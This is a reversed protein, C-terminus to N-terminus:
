AAQLTLLEEHAVVYESSRLPVFGLPEPEPVLATNMMQNFLLAMRAMDAEAAQAHVGSQYALMADEAVGASGDTRTFRTDGMVTVDTSAGGSSSEGSHVQANSQLNITAIGLADLSQYEGDQTQGDANKDEWVGFKAWQADGTDLRGNGNSDFAKLGELDTQAGEVYQRFAFESANSIQHDGNLDLGLVGSGPAAWAIKDSVGDLDIDYSVKSYQTSIYSPDSGDLSLVVPGVYGSYEMYSTAGASMSYNFHWINVLGRDDTINWTSQFDTFGFGRKVDLYMGTNTYSFGNVGALSQWAYYPYYPGDADSESRSYDIRWVQLSQLSVSAFATDGDDQVGWSASAIDILRGSNGGTGYFSAGYLNVSAYLNPPPKVEVYATAWTQGGNGDDALYDFSATGTFGVTPVFQVQGNVVEAHGNARDRVASLGVADGDVDSDNGTLQSFGITMTSNKYTQFQDDVALPRDNVAAVPIIAQVTASELGAADRVKYSFSANGNFNANPTFVVNGNADLSVAGGNASGVWSLSLASNADDIDSDNGILLSKNINFVADESAGSLSEGQAVPADNVASLMVKATVPASEAGDADQVWYTFTAAQSADTNNYNAAPTFVVDGNANLSVTGHTGSEVRAIKLSSHASDIDTDNQLLSAATITLVADEQSQITEGLPVPADNVNAIELVATATATGGAGDSVTYNFSATGFFDADPVFAITGDSQISVTGQQANFVTSVSLVQPDTALDVDTDNQLLAAPAILLTQDELTDITEGTAVPVDNVGTIQFTAVAQSVAGAADRVQYVFSAPGHYNADPTFVVETSGDPMQVLAVTGHTPNGVANVSLVDNVGGWQVNNSDADTDNALLHATSIHLATDELTTGADDPRAVPTDNVAAIQLTATATRSLGYQDTVTYVFSATGFYNAEPAFFVEGNVLSVQGHVPASVATISLPNQSPNASANVTSDNALLISQPLRLVVDETGPLTEGQVEPYDLTVPATADSPSANASTSSEGSASVPLAANVIVSASLLPPAVPRLYSSPVPAIDAAQTETPAPPISPTTVGNTAVNFVGLDVQRFVVTPAASVTSGPRASGLSSDYGNSSNVVLPTGDMNANLPNGALPERGTAQASQVAGLGVAALAGLGANAGVGFLSSQSSEIMSQTVAVTQGQVSTQGLPVFALPAGTPRAPISTVTTVTSPANSKIRIDGVGIVTSTNTQSPAQSNAMPPPVDSTVRADNETITSQTTLNQATAASGSTIAGTADTETPAGEVNGGGHRHQNQEATGEWDGTRLANHEFTAERVSGWRTVGAQDTVQVQGQYGEHELMQGANITHLNGQADAEQMQTYRMGETDSQLTTASLADSHGDAYTVAGTSFNIRTIQLSALDAQEGSDLRADQNVDVWLKIAAFAPDSKDLVGDGNADLWEVNNRQLHANATAALADNAQNGAQGANGGLNLIDRTEIQGNGNYDIVLMGQLNGQADTASVWQTKEFYGDGETDRYLTSTQVAQEAQQDQLSQLAQNSAQVADTNLHVVLAGFSQTKFDASETANGQLAYAQNGHYAHGGAGAGLQAAIEGQGAGEALLQQMHGLQTQVQWAPAIGGNETLVELLRQALNNGQIVERYSGGDPTTMEIWAGGAQSYGVRPLLYPNIAVNDSIDATQDNISQVISNLLSQVSRATSQAMEGGRSQNFDLKIQINGQADWEYHTAGEPPPPRNDGFVGAADLLGGITGGIASGLPGWAMGLLAGMSQGPHHEFDNLAIAISIYPVGTSGLASNLAGDIAQDSLGNISSLTGLLNGNEISQALNITSAITNYTGLNGLAGDNLTNISNAVGLLSNFHGLDDMQDWHQLSNIGQLLNLAANFPQLAANYQSGYQVFPAPAITEPAAQEYEVPALPQNSASDGEAFSDVNGGGADGGGADSLIDGNVGDGGADGTNANLTSQNALYAAAEAEGNSQGPQYDNDASPAATLPADSTGPTSGAYPANAPVPLERGAMISNLDADPGYVSKLYDTYQAVSLGLKTAIGSVTDGPQVVYNPTSGEITNTPANALATSSNFYTSSSSTSGQVPEMLGTERNISRRQGTAADFVSVLNFSDPANPNNASHTNQYVREGVPKGTATDVDTVIRTVSGDPNRVDQTRTSLGPQSTQGWTQSANPATQTTVGYPQGDPATTNQQAIESRIFSDQAIQSNYAAVQANYTELQQEFGAAGLYSQTLEAIVSGRVVETYLNPAMGGDNSMAFWTYKGDVQVLAYQHGDPTTVTPQLPTDNPLTLPPGLKDPTNGGTLYAGLDKAYQAGGLAGIGAGMGAGIVNGPGPFISGVSSGVQAGIWAGGAQGAVGLGETVAEAGNGQAIHQGVNITDNIAGVYAAGPAIKGVGGPLNPFHTTASGAGAELGAVVASPGDSLIESTGIRPRAAADSAINVNTQLTGAGAVSSLAGNSFSFVNGTSVKPKNPESM